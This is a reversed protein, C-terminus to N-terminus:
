KHLEKKYTKIPNDGAEQNQKSTDTGTSGIIPSKEEEETKSLKNADERSSPMVSYLDQVKLSNKLPINGATTYVATKGKGVIDENTDLIFESVNDQRNDLVYPNSEFVYRRKVRYCDKYTKYSNAEIQAKALKAAEVHTTTPTITRCNNHTSNSIINYTSSSTPSAQSKKIMQESLKSLSITNSLAVPSIKNKIHESITIDPSQNQSVVSSSSTRYEEANAFFALKDSGNDDRFYNNTQRTNQIIHGQIATPLTKFKDVYFEITSPLLNEGNELLYNTFKLAEDYPKEAGNISRFLRSLNILFIDDDEKTNSIYEDYYEAPLGTSFNYHQNTKFKEM